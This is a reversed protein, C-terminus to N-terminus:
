YVALKKWLDEKKQTVAYSLWETWNIQRKTDAILSVSSCLAGSDVQLTQLSQLVFPSVNVVLLLIKGLQKTRFVVISWHLRNTSDFIVRKKNFDVNNKTVCLM